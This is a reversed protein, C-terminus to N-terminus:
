RILEIIKAQMAQAWIQYGQDNPHLLDPMLEASLNDDDHLFYHNIDLYFINKEDAYSAIIQNISNNKKRMVNYRSNERPFIALLLIKTQPMRNQLEDIIMKIGQATHEAPDMRQGTNNTGIMLITLKANLNDVAGHQLRWLVHETRDGSFGLNIGSLKPYYQRWIEDRGPNEWGHTISDGLLLIDVDSNKAEELKENHRTQWWDLTWDATQKKAISAEIPPLPAAATSLPACGSIFLIIIYLTSISYRSLLHM